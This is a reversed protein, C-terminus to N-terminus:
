ERRDTESRRPGATEPLGLLAIFSILAAAM